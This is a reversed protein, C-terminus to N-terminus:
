ENNIVEDKYGNNKEQIEVKGLLGLQEVAVVVEILEIEVVQVM